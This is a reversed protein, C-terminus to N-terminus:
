VAQAEEPSIGFVDAIEPLTWNHHLHHLVDWVSVRTGAIRHNMMAAM